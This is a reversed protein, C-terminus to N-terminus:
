GQNLSVPKTKNQIEATLSRNTTVDTGDGNTSWRLSLTGTGRSVGDSDVKIYSPRSHESLTFNLVAQLGKFNTVTLRVMEGNDVYNFDSVASTAPAKSDAM